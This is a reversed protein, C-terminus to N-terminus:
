IQIQYKKKNKYKNYKNCLPIIFENYKKQDNTKM